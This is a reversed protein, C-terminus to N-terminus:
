PLTVTVSTGVKAHLQRAANGQVKAIEITGMSSTLVVLSARPAEGYTQVWRFPRLPRRGLKVHVPPRPVASAPINTILNGFQDVFVIEGTVLNKGQRLPRSELRIWEDTADGLEDPRVGLSLHGAVAAFIDRGHFTHSVDPRFYRANSVRRVRAQDAGAVLTWCGNDPTLLRQGACEIFLVARDTGVGPDVVIVHITNPPFYPLAAALFFAAHRIDQPPIAHSLDVLRAGPNISLIVGKVAAVYPSAEGFDTTLTVIRDKM